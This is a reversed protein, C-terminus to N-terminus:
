VERLLYHHRYLDYAIIAGAVALLASPYRLDVTIFSLWSVQSSLYPMYSLLSAGVILVPLYWRRPAFFAYLVSFIDALFFYREHMRPLFYPVLLVCALSLLITTAARQAPTKYVLVAIAGAIVCAIIMGGWFLIDSMGPSLPLNNFFAFVSPSSVSLYPYEGSQKLYVTLWYFFNDGDLAAPLISLVYVVPPLALYWARKKDKLLYGILIPAFFLAQVKVSFALGFFVAAALPANVFICLLSALIPAAYIADSQGWLSSNLALTPICLFVAFILFLAAKGYHTPSFRRIITVALAAICIEFALSLTKVAYLSNFPILAIIKLLYLYLPAYDSFPQSFATLGPMLLWQLWQKVFYTYDSVAIPYWSIRIIFSFLMLAIGAAVHFAGRADYREAAM